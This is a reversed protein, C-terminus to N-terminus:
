RLQSRREAELQVEKRAAYEAFMARAEPEKHLKRYLTALSYCADAAAADDAVAAKYEAIAEGSQGEKELARGLHYHAAALRPDFRLSERLAAESQKLQNMRLCLFGLNHPPWPSPHPLGRNLSTAKEFAAYAEDMNGQMDFALGLSDWARVSQPDLTLTQKLKEIAEQYRHLHYDIKGLWYVYIPKEPHKSALDLIVRSAQTDEGLNVLAMALTFADGDSLRGKEGASRFDLVATHMDGALFAVAGKLATLEPYASPDGADRRALKEELAAFNRQALDQAAAQAEGSSAFARQLRRALDNDEGRVALSLMAGVAVLAVSTM